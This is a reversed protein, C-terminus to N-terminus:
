MENTRSKKRAEFGANVPEQSGHHRASKEEREEEEKVTTGCGSRRVASQVGTDSV